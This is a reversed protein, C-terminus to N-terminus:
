KEFLQIISKVRNSSQLNKSIGSVFETHTIQNKNQYFYVDYEKMIPYFGFTLRHDNKSDFEFEYLESGADGTWRLQYRAHTVNEPTLLPKILKWYSMFKQIESESFKQFFLNNEVKANKLQTVMMQASYVENLNNLPSIIERAFFM